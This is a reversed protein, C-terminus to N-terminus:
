MVSVINVILYCVNTWRTPIAKVDNNHYFWSINNREEPIKLEYRDLFRRCTDFASEEILKGMKKGILTAACKMLNKGESSPSKKPLNPPPPATPVVFMSGGKETNEVAMNLPSPLVACM